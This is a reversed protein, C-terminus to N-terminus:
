AGTCGYTGMAHSWGVSFRMTLLHKLNTSDFDTGRRLAGPRRRWFFKLKTDKKDALVFWADTDTLYHWQFWSLVDKLANVDNNATGPKYESQLLEKATQWLDVPVVLKAGTTPRKLGREDTFKGVATLAAALSSVGLDVNTSPENAWTSGDAAVHATSFLELGDYGTYSNSFGNNFINAAVVEVTERASRALAEPFKNFTAPVHQNDELAEEVLEYGLAYTKHTYTTAAGEYIQDYTANAGETKEPMMGFGTLYGDKESQKTSGLVNFVQSYEEKFSKMNDMFVENLSVDLANSINSRNIAM